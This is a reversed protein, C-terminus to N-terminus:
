NEIGGRSSPNFFDHNIKLIMSNYYIHNIAKKRKPFIYRMEQWAHLFYFFLHIPRAGIIKSIQSM